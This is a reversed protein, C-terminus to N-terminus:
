KDYRWTHKGSKGSSSGGSYYYCHGTVTTSHVFQIYRIKLSEIYRDTTAALRTRCFDLGSGMVLKPSGHTKMLVKGVTEGPTHKWKGAEARGASSMLLLLTFLVFTATNLLMKKM